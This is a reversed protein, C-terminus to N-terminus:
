LAAAAFVPPNLWVVQTLSIPATPDRCKARIKPDITHFPIISQFDFNVFFCNPWKTQSYIYSKKLFSKLKTIENYPCYIYTSGRSCLNDEAKIEWDSQNSNHLFLM